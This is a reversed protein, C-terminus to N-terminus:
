QKTRGADQWRGALLLIRCFKSHPKYGEEEPVRPYFRWLNHPKAEELNASIQQSLRGRCRRQARGQRERTM